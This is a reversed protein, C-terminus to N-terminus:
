THRAALQIRDRELAESNNKLADEIANSFEEASSCYAVLDATFYKLDPNFNTAVVPKGAGLYEFLKLPFVTGSDNHAKFPIIAVDFGKVLNPMQEYAIRGTFYINPINFFFEPVLHREIPGAFV